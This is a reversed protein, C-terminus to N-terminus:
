GRREAKIVAIKEFFFRKEGVVEVAFARAKLKELTKRHGSISSSLLLLVGCPALHDEFGDLFEDVVRRGDAGGDWAIADPFRKEGPETPLYPPNFAITDFKEKVASFVNTKIFSIKGAVGNKEANMRAAELANESADAATVRNVLKKRAAVIGQIGCGTGLDLVAGKAFEEVAEALLFSDEHPSYVGRPVIFELGRWAVTCPVSPKPEAFLEIQLPAVRKVRM